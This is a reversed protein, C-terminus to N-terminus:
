RPTRGMVETRPNFVVTTARFEGPTRGTVKKIQRSLHSASAYGCLEAIVELSQNSSQIAGLAHRARLQQLRHMPSQGRLRSFLARMYSDSVGLEACLGSITIPETFREELLREFRRVLLEASSPAVVPAMRRLLVHLQGLLLSLMELRHERESTWERILSAIVDQAPREADDVLQLMEDGFPASDILLYYCSWPGRAIEGHTLGPPICFLLGPHTEILHDGMQCQPQGELYYVVEWVNHTHLSKGVGTPNRSCGTSQLELGSFTTEHLRLPSNHM